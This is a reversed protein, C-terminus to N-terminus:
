SASFIFFSLYFDPHNAVLVSKRDKRQDASVARQQTRHMVRKVQKLQVPAIQPPLWNLFSLCQCEALVSATITM